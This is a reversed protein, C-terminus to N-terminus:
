LTLADAQPASISLADLTIQLMLAHEAHRQETYVQTIQELRQAEPQERDEELADLRQRYPANGAELREAQSISLYSRWFERAVLSEALREDTERELVQARALAAREDSVGSVGRYLMATTQLPLDLETRLATRYALMVEIQDPDSGAQRREQIDLLALRDVEDLRWLQRGLRLLAQERQGAAAGHEARWVLVQLELDAFRLAVSDQCTLQHASSFLSARLTGDEHMVKLMDMVRRALALPGRPQRYEATSLLGELLDFFAESGEVAEMEDWYAGLEVRAQQGISDMWRLRQPVVQSAGGPAPHRARLALQLRQAQAATLPNGRLQVDGGVWLPSAYFDEPLQTILNSRIDLRRLRPHAVVGHPLQDLETHALHLEDLRGLASVSFGRGLPNYALNIYNLQECCALITSQAPDLVIQNNSLDLCELRRMQLLPQPIRTLQNNPLELIRVNAFARWFSDPVSEIGMSRMSVVLVHDFSVNAPLEPLAGPQAGYLSWRYSASLVSAHADGGARRQWCARMAERFFRRADRQADDSASRVWGNLRDNLAQYQRELRALEHAVNLGAGSTQELWTFLQVDTFSPYLDRLRALASRPLRGGWAGAPGRGSLPYGLRGDAMRLVPRMAGAAAQASPHLLREVEATHAEAQRTIASRLGVAFPSGLDLAQRAPQDFAGALVSFLEGPAAVAQGSAELLQYLGNRHLLDFARGQGLNAALLPGQLNAEFLRLRPVAQSGALHDLMGLALRAHDATQPVDLYLAERARVIRTRTVCARAAEALRLAVRGSAHLRQREGASATRLLYQADLHHLGPFIRRLTTMEPTETDQIAEYVQQFLVRRNQMVHQVLREGALQAAGPLRQAHALLMTDAVAGGRRLNALLRDIRRSLQSRIVSDILGASPAQSFVHLARLQDASLEHMNLVQHIQRADLDAFRGGLRRFMRPVDDWEAPQESWVRWAGAGNHRLRPAHGAIPLLQWPEDHVPERVPYFQGEMEIWAEPGLRHVGLADRRAGPGPPSGRYPSLDGDWLAQSGDELQAPVLSDVAWARAWIRQAAALGAATAGMVAVDKAVHGLHVLAQRSAGAHWADVAQFTQQLVQWATVALMVSGLAPVFLSAMGLLTWGEAILRQEHAAQVARDLRAIPMLLTAADDKLQDIRAQALSEFLPAPYDRLTEDLDINAWVPLDAYGALVQAFFAQSDRRRVFRSFFRQYDPQRLRQGLVKRVFKLLDDHAHWPGQPDGPIYVLVRKSSSYLPAFTENRVDLVVIQQLDCGLVQLQRAIVRHGDLRGPKGQRWLDIVLQLEADSLIRQHRARFADVLMSSGALAGLWVKVNAPVAAPLLVSDLHQQYAGGLDLERCLQAFAKASIGPVERNADDRLGAHAPLGGAGAQWATFNRVAAEVLPVQYYVEETLPVHIPAYSSLPIKYANRFWLQRLPVAIAFREILAVQLRGEVFRDIPEIAAWRARLRLRADVCQQLAAHLVDVRAPSWDHVWTPLRQALLHDQYGQETARTRANSIPSESASTM